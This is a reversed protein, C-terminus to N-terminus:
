GIYLIKGISRRSRLEIVLKILRNGPVHLFDIQRKEDSNLAEWNNIIYNNFGADIVLDDASDVKLTKSVGSKNVILQESRWEVQESIPASQYMTLSYDPASPLCGFNVTKDAILSGDTSKYEVTAVGGKKNLRYAHHEEYVVQGATNKVVGVATYDRELLQTNVCNAHVPLAICFGMVLQVLKTPSCM